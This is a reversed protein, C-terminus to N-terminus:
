SQRRRTSYHDDDGKQRKIHYVQTAKLYFSLTIIVLDDTINIVCVQNTQVQVLEELMIHIQM